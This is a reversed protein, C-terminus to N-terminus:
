VMVCERTSKAICSYCSTFASRPAAFQGFTRRPEPNNPQPARANSFDPTSSHFQPNLAQLVGAWVWIKLTKPEVLIRVCPRTGFRASPEPPLRGLGWFELMGLGWHTLITLSRFSSLIISRSAFSRKRAACDPMLTQPFQPSM